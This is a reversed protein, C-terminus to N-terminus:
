SPFRDLKQCNHDVSQAETDLDGPRKYSAAQYFNQKKKAISIRKIYLIKSKLAM